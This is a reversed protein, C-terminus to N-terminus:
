RTHIHTDALPFLHPHPPHLTHSCCCPCCYNVNKFMEAYVSLHLQIKKRGDSFFLFRPEEDTM